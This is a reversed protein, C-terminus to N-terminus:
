LALVFVRGSGETSWCAGSDIEVLAGSREGPQGDGLIPIDYVNGDMVEGSRVIRAAAGERVGYLPGDGPQLPLGARLRPLHGQAPREEEEAATVDGAAAFQLRRARLHM